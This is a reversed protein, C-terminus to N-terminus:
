LKEIESEAWKKFAEHKQKIEDTTTNLETFEPLSFSNVWSLAKEKFPAKAAIAKAKQEALIEATRKALDEAEKFAKAKLEAELKFIRDREESDKKEKKVMEEHDFKWQLEAGKKIETYEKQYEDEPLEIMSSYNRIFIIYPRLEENRKSVLEKRVKEKEDAEAKQKALLDAQNKREIELEKEKRDAEAKAIELDDKIKAQEAEKATRKEIASNVIVMFNDESMEGFCVSEYNDIFEVLRITKNKRKTNLKEKKEAEIRAIEAQKEAEIKAEYAVKLGQLYAEYVQVEMDGIASAPHETYKSVELLREAQLQAKKAKEINAFYNEIESLKEEMQEIPLTEDNKISDVFLGGARFYAKKNKHVDAIGTRVKVLQLRVERAQKCIAPTIEATLLQEYIKALANREIVKPLFAQEITTAEVVELGFEKPDKKVLENTM